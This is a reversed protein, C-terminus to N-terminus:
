ASPSPSRTANLRIFGRAEPEDHIINLADFMAKM